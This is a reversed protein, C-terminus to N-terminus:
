DDRGNAVEARLVQEMVLDVPALHSFVEVAGDDGECHNLGKERTENVAGNRIRLEVRLGMKKNLALLSHALGFLHVVHQLFNLISDDDKFVLVIFLVSEVGHLEGVGEHL